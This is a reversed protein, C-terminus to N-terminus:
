SIGSLDLPGGAPAEFYGKIVDESVESLKEPEWKPRRDKDIVQARVGEYFDHGTLINATVNFERSICSAFDDPAGALLEHTLLLSTPSGHAIRDLCHAGFGEHEDRLQRLLAPVSEVREFYTRIMDLMEILDGPRRNAAGDLIASITAGADGALDLSLLDNRVGPLNDEAIVHAAVGATLCDAGKLRTGTYALYNGMGSPLRPLFYSAGVDPILGIGCEPMAWLTRGTAVRHSAQNSIGVGGGMCIGDMLAVYPKKFQAIRTNMRYETRFFRAALEPDDKGTDNLWRIDGGACFAKEGEGEVLVARVEDDAAWDILARDIVECMDQTLSNLAKERTLTIVGWAGQKETHIDDSM